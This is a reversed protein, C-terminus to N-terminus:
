ERLNIYKVNSLVENKDYNDKIDVFVEEFHNMNIDRGGLGYIYPFIMPRNELNYLASRVENFLPGGYSGPSLTRDLVAISKLGSLTEKLEQHPFPRFVRM